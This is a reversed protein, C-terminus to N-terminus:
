INWKVCMALYITTLQEYDPHSVLSILWSQEPHNQKPNVCSKLLLVDMEVIYFLM